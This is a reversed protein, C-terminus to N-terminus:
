RIFCFNLSTIERLTYVDDHIHHSLNNLKFELVRNESIYSYVRYRFRCVSWVRMPDIIRYYLSQRLDFYHGIELRKGPVFRQQTFEM